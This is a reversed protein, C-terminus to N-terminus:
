EKEEGKETPAAEQGEPMNVAADEAAPSKKKRKDKGLALRLATCVIPTILACSALEIVFNVGLLSVLFAKGITVGGFTKGFNFAAMMSVVLATNTVVGCLASVTSAIFTSADDSRNKLLKKVLKFAFYASIPIILRPVISVLPNYFIPSLLGPRLFASTLSALGFCLGSFLGMGFGEVDAAIFIAILPIFAVDIGMFNIPVFVFLLILSLFLAAVAIDKSTIKIRKTM